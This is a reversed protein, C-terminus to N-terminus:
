SSAVIRGHAIVVLYTLSADDVVARREVAADPEAAHVIEVGRRPLRIRPDDIISRPPRTAACDTTGGSQFGTHCMKSSPSNVKSNAFAACTFFTGPRLM